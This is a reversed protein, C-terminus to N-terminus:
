EDERHLDTEITESDEEEAETVARAQEEQLTQARSSASRQSEDANPDSMPSLFDNESQEENLSASLPSEKEEACRNESSFEDGDVKSEDLTEQLSDSKEADKKRAEQALAARKAAGSFDGERYEFVIYVLLLICGFMLFLDAINGIAFDINFFTKLFTYDIFDRVYGFAIRDVVNGLAGAVISLAAIRFSKKTDPRLILFAVVGATVLVTLVILFTTKGGFIGFSAGYNKAQILTFIGEWVTFRTGSQEDLFKFILSKSLLDIVLLVGVFLIEFLFKKILQKKRNKDITM